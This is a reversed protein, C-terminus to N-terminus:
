GPCVAGNTIIRGVKSSTGDSEHTILLAVWSGPVNEAQATCGGDVVLTIPLAM